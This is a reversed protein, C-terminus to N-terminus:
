HKKHTHTHKTYRAQLVHRTPLPLRATRCRCCGSLAPRSSVSPDDSSAHSGSGSLSINVLIPLSLSHPSLSCPSTQLGKQYMTMSVPSSLEFCLCMRVFTCTCCLASVGAIVLYLSSFSFICFSQFPYPFSFLSLFFAFYKIFTM